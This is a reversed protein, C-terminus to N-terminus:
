GDTKMRSRTEVYNKYLLENADAILKKRERSRQHIIQNTDQLGLDVPTYMVGNDLLGIM